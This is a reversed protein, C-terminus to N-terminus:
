NTVTHDSDIISIVRTELDVQPEYDKRLSNIIFYLGVRTLTAIAIVICLGESNTSHPPVGMGGGM